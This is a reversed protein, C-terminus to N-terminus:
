KNEGETMNISKVNRFIEKSLKKYCREKEKDTIYGTIYLTSISDNIRQYAEVRPVFLDENLLQEQISDALAGFRLVM